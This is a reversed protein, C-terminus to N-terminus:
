SALIAKADIDAYKKGEARARRLAGALKWGADTLALKPNMGTGLNEVLGEAELDDLCDWDDHRKLTKGGALRTEPEELTGFMELDLSSLMPVEGRLIRSRKTRMKNPAIKGGQDVCVTEIYTMTSLHDTGWQEVPVPKGNWHGEAMEGDPDTFMALGSSVRLTDGPARHSGAGLGQLTGNVVEVVVSDGEVELVRVMCTGKRSHELRYTAGQTPPTKTMKGNVNWEIATKSM